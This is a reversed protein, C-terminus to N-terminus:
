GGFILSIVSLIDFGLFVIWIVAFITFVHKQFRNGKEEYEKAWVFNLYILVSDIIICILHWMM